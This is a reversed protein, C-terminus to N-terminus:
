GARAMFAEIDLHTQPCPSLAHLPLTSFPERSTSKGNRVMLCSDRPLLRPPVPEGKRGGGMSLVGSGHHSPGELSGVPDSETELLLIEFGQGEARQGYGAMHQAKHCRLMKLIIM